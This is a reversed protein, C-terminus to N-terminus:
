STHELTRRRDRIATRAHDLVLSFTLLGNEDLLGKQSADVASALLTDARGQLEDLTQVTKAERALRLIEIPGSLRNSKRNIQGTTFSGVAALASGVVSLALIGYYFFDGYRDFFTKQEGEFYGAAGPHVAVAASKDTDPAEIRGSAPFDAALVPRMEFFLRAIEGADSESMTSRAVIFHSFGITEFTQGPRRGGFAGAVVETSDYLQSRQAIAKAEGVPLFVPDRGERTMAAVAESVARGTIPGAAMLFDVRGDRVAASAEDISIPVARVATPAINYQGLIADLVPLNLAGRGIIGIRKGALDGIQGLQSDPPGVIVVVNRRVTVIARGNRPIGLDRRVLALDVTGADLAAAADAPNTRGVLELRFLSRDRVLQTQIASMIRADEGDAAVAVRLTQPTTYYLAAAAAAGLLVFAATVLILLRQM